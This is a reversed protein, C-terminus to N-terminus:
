LPQGDAKLYSVVATFDIKLKNYMESVIVAYM